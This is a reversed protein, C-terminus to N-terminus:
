VWDAKLGVVSIDDRQEASGQHAKLVRMLEERQGEFTKHRNEELISKFLKSGLRKRQENSQDIYGDTSLYVTTGQPLFYAQNKFQKNPKTGGISIRDGKLELLKQEPMALWAKSKAGCFTLHAGQEAREFCCVSVDMGDKNHGDQQRLIKRLGANLNRLIRAPDQHVGKVNITEHLLASGLMSMFAGPVGHGTCDALVFVAEDTSLKSFWYFDGSVVDKPIFIAFTDSFFSSLRNPTPVIIQQIDSAYSLSKDLQETTFKLKEYTQEVTKKQVELNENLMVLEEQQQRLEENATSIERKQDELLANDKKKIRYSRYVVFSLILVFGFGGVLANRIFRQESLEAQHAFEAKEQELRIKEEKYKFEQNLAKKLNDENSISDRLAIYQRYNRYALDIKKLHDAALYTEHLADRLDVNNGTKRALSSAKM